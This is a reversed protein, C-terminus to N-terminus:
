SEIGATRPSSSSRASPDRRLLDDLARLGNAIDADAALPVSPIQMDLLVVDPLFSEAMDIADRASKARALTHGGEGLWLQYDSANGDDDEVLLVRTAPKKDM